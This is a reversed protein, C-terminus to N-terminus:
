GLFRAPSVDEIYVLADFARRWDLEYVGFDSRVTTISGFAKRVPGDRPISNFDFLYLPVKARALVAQLTGDDGPHFPSGWQIGGDFVTGIM